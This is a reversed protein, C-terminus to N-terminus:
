LFIKLLIIVNIIDSIIYKNSDIKDPNERVKDYSCECM